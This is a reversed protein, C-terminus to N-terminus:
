SLCEQCYDMADPDYNEIPHFEKGCLACPKPKLWPNETYYKELWEAHAVPDFKVETFTREDQDATM